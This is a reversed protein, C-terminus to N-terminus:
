FTRINPDKYEQKSGDELMEELYPSVEEATKKAENLQQDIRDVLAPTDAAPLAPQAAAPLAPVVPTPQAPVPQTITPTNTTLPTNQLNQTAQSSINIANSGNLVVNGGLKNYIKEYIDSSKNYYKVGKDIVTDILGSIVSNGLQDQIYELDDIKDLAYNERGKASSRLYDVFSDYLNRPLMFFRQRGSLRAGKNKLRQLKNNQREIRKSVINKAMNTKLNAQHVKLEEVKNISKDQKKDNKDLRNQYHTDIRDEVKSLDLGMNLVQDLRSEKERLRAELIRLEKDSNDKVRKIQGKITAIDQTLEKIYQEHM